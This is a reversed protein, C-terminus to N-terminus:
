IWKGQTFLKYWTRIKPLCSNSLEKQWMPLCGDLAQFCGLWFVAFWYKWTMKQFNKRILFCFFRFLCLITKTETRVSPCPFSRFPHEREGWLGVGPRQRGGTVDKGVMRKELIQIQFVSVNAWYSPNDKKKKKLKHQSKDVYFPTLSSRESRTFM